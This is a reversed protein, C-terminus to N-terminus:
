GKRKGGKSIKLMLEQTELKTILDEKAQKRDFKILEKQKEFANKYDATAEYVKLLLDYYIYTADVSNKFGPLKEVSLLIEKAEEYQEQTLIIEARLLEARIIFPTVKNELALSLCQKTYDEAEDFRKLDLYITAINLYITIIIRTDNYKEAIKLADFAHKLANDYDGKGLYIESLNTFVAAQMPEDCFKIAYTLAKNFYKIAQTHNNFKVLAIALNTYDKALLREDKMLRSLESAKTLYNISEEKLNLQGYTIGLRSYVCNLLVKDDMTIIINYAQVLVERAQHNEYQVWFLLGRTLLAEVIGRPYKQKKALKYAKNSLDEARKFDPKKFLEKAEKNLNDIDAQSVIM